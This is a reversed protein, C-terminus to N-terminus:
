PRREVILEVETGGGAATHVRARGGHREMRGLISERVGRRDAPVSDLDFGPGRDRVFVEIRDDDAEAYVSVPGGGAFKAANVLAERAAAVVAEGSEDLPADGVAVVDVPVGLAEEVEAATAELAAALTAADAHGPLRGGNLWARLEREQRRALGAVERPDDARRQMMALTQLVSDHLHAAMEAREQSRIRETREAALGRVLRLWWPALILAAAVIVVLIALLVDRAPRLANNLWLFAIAAAIILAVGITARGSTRGGPQTVRRVEAAALRMSALVPPEKTAAPAPPAEPESQWTSPASPSANGAGAQSQRWILAAGGAALVVPWVLADSFWLGSKRAALMVGLVVLGMGIAVQWGRRDLKLRAVAMGSGGEEAPVLAWMALYLVIGWGGAVAGAVFAIRVFIPDIGLRLAIGSCVGSILARESDRRLRQPPPAPADPREPAVKVTDM